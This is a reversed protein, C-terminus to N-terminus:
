IEPFIDPHERYYKVWEDDDTLKITTVYNGGSFGGKKDFKSQKKSEVQESSIGCLKNFDDIAQQIDAIESLIQDNTDGINIESVEEAIKRILESKQEILTLKEYEAQQNCKVYDDVLKDRVLKNLKFTPM